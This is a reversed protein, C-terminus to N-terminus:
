TELRAFYWAFALVERALFYPKKRLAHEEVVPVTYARLGRRATRLKIRALHYDHSVFLLSAWGNRRALAAATDVTNATTTGTEDLVLAHAPVGEALAIERMCAPESSPARPDRGGSLVLTHVLGDHYLACATRTRDLLAGSPTGDPRVAAGLVVAADAPRRYDTAGFALLHLLTGLGVLMLPLGGRVVHHWLMRRNAPQRRERPRATVGWLLLLAGLPLSLPVPLTSAITGRALLAFFVIADAFCGIALLLALVRAVALGRAHAPRLLLVAVSFAGALLTAATPPLAGARLWLWTGDLSPAACALLANLGAVLALAVIAADLLASATFLRYRLAM